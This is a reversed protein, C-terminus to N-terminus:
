GEIVLRAAEDEVGREWIVFRLGYRGCNGCENVPVGTTEKSWRCKPCYWAQANERGTAM